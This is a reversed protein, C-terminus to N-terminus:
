NFPSRKGQIEAKCTDTDVISLYPRGIFFGIGIEGKVCYIEEKKADLTVSSKSETEAWVESEGEPIDIKLFANNKLPGIGTNNQEKNNVYVGYHAGGGLFADPRYIYLLAKNQKPKEFGSFLEGKASCGSLGFIAFSAMAAIVLINKKM